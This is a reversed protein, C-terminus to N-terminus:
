STQQQQHHREHTYLSNVYYISYSICLLSKFQHILNPHLGKMGRPERGKINHLKKGHFQQAVKFFIIKMNSSPLMYIFLIHLKGLPAYCIPWYLPHLTHSIIIWVMSSVYPKPVKKESALGQHYSGGLWVTYYNTSSKHGYFFFSNKKLKCALLFLLIGLSIECTPDQSPLICKSRVVIECPLSKKKCAFITFPKWWGLSSDSKNTPVM